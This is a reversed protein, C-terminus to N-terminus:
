LDELLRQSILEEVAEVAGELSGIVLRALTAQGTVRQVVELNRRAHRSFHFSMRAMEVVAEARAVPTISTDAGKVYRPFIVFRPPSASTRITRAGLQRPDVHWQQLRDDTTPRCQPFLPWSGPDFSLLKPFPTIRGTDPDIAVAEDTIYDFGSRLLGAVTTTKGSEMDAPLIVTMGARTAASAHLLVHKDASADIASRNLHWTLMGTLARASASGMLHEDDVYLNFPLDATGDSRVTYRVHRPPELETRTRFPAVLMGLQPGLGPPEVLLEFRHELAACPGSRWAWEITRVSRDITTSAELVPATTM